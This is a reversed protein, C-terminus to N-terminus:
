GNARLSCQNFHRIVAHSFDKKSWTFYQDRKEGAGGHCSSSKCGAVGMFQDGKLPAVEVETAASSGASALFLAIPSLWCLVSRFVNDISGFITIAVM